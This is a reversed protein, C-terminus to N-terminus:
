LQQCIIGLSVIINCIFLTKLCITDEIRQNDKLRILLSINETIYSKSKRRLIITKPPLHVDFLGLITMNLSRVKESIDDLQKVAM